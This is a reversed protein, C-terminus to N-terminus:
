WHSTCLFLAESDVILFSRWTSEDRSGLEPARHCLLVVCPLVPGGYIGGKVGTSGGLADPLTPADVVVSSRSSGISGLRSSFISMGSSSQRRNQLTLNSGNPSRNSSISPTFSTQSTRRSADLYPSQINSSSLKPSPASWLQLRCLDQRSSGGLMKSEQCTTLVRSDDHM